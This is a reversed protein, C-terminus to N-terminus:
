RKILIFLVVVAGLALVLGLNGSGGSVSGFLGFKSVDDEFSVPNQVSQDEASNISRQLEKADNAQKSAVLAGVAAASGAPGGLLFGGVAAAGLQYSERNEGIDEKTRRLWTTLQSM